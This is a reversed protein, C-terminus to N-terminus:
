SLYATGSIAASFTLRVTNSDLYELNSWEVESAQSDIVKIGAPEYGMHHPITWVTSASSQLHTYHLPTLDPSGGVSIAVRQDDVVLDYTGEECFFTVDGYQDTGVPNAATVLGQSDAYLQVYTTTGPLFVNVATFRAPGGSQFQVSEPGYLGIAM